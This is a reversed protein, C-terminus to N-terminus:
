YITSRDVLTTTCWDNLLLLMQHAVTDPSLTVSNFIRDNRHLWIGRSVLLILSDYARRRPKPVHKRKRLWWPMFDNFATPVLTGWGFKSFM